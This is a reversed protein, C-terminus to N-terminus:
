RERAPLRVTFEDELAPPVVLLNPMVGMPNGVDDKFAMMAERVTAVNAKTLAYTGENSQTSASKQPSDPHATSCLGVADAGPFNDDFANNFVSAAHVERLQAASDGAREVLRFVETFNSDDILKRKITVELPYEKHTYTTKYGQDFDARGVRGSQEYAEWAEIGIAGVGSVQEYNRSSSQVNFLMPIMSQRRNFALDFRFRVIPDLADAWLGNREGTLTM